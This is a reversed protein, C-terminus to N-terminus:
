VEMGIGHQPFFLVTPKNVCLRRNEAKNHKGRNGNNQKDPTKGEVGVSRGNQWYKIDLEHSCLERNQCGHCFVSGGIEVLM